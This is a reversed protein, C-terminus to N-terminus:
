KSKILCHQPECLLASCINGLKLPRSFCLVVTPEHFLSTLAFNAQNSCDSTQTDSCFMFHKKFPDHVSFGFNGQYKSMYSTMLLGCSTSHEVRHHFLTNLCRRWLLLHFGVAGGVSEEDSITYGWEGIRCRMVGRKMENCQSGTAARMLNLVSISAYLVVM